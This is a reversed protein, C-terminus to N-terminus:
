FKYLLLKMMSRFSPIMGLVFYLLRTKLPLKHIYKSRFISLAAKRELKANLQDVTNIDDVTWKHVAGTTEKLRDKGSNVAFSSMVDFAIQGQPFNSTILNLLEKVEDETLYELVGEALIITPQDKPIQNLWNLDTISSSIM